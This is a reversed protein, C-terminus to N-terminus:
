SILCNWDAPCLTGMLPAQHINWNLCIFRPNSPFDLACRHVNFDLRTQLMSFYLHIYVGVPDM